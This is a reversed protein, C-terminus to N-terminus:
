GLKRVMDIVSSSWGNWGTFPRSNEIMKPSKEANPLGEHLLGAAVGDSESKVASFEMKKVGLLVRNM